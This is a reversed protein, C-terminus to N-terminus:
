EPTKFDKTSYTKVPTLKKAPIRTRFKDRAVDVPCREKAENKSSIEAAASQINKAKQEFFVSIRKQMETSFADPYNIVIKTEGREMTKIFHTSSVVEDPQNAAWFNKFHHSVFRGCFSLDNNSPGPLNNNKCYDTLANYLTMFIFLTQLM